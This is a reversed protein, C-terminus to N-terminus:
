IGCSFSADVFRQSLKMLNRLLLNLPFDRNVQNIKYACTKPASHVVQGISYLFECFIQFAELQLFARDEKSTKKIYHRIYLM